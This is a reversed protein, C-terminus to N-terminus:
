VLPKSEDCFEWPLVCAGLSTHINEPDVCNTQSACAVIVLVYFIEVVSVM